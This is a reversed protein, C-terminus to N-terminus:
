IMNIQPVYEVNGQLKFAGEFDQDQQNLIRFLTTKAAGNNGIIGVVSNSNIILHKAEFLLEGNQYKKLNHINGIEM